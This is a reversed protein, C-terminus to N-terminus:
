EANRLTRVDGVRVTIGTADFWELLPLAYKRSTGIADRFRAPTLDGEAAATHLRARIEAIQEARYVDTGIVVLAGGAVLTDFAQGIGRIRSERLARTLEGLGVPVLPADGDVAVTRDFFARQEVSLQPQHAPTCFYGSRAVVRGADVEASLLRVLSREDVDFERALALSTTGVM